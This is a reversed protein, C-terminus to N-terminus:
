SVSICPLEILVVQSRNPRGRETSFSVSCFVLCCFLVFPDFCPLCIILRFMRTRVGKGQYTLYVFILLRYSALLHNSLALTQIDKSPIGVYGCEM